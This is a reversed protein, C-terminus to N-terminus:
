PRTELALLASQMLESIRTTCALAGLSRAEMTEAASCESTYLVFPTRDGRQVRMLSLLTFGARPDDVRWQDSIVLDFRRTALRQLAEETSLALVFDIGFSAMAERERRNNDPKDDVWLVTRTAGPGAGVQPVFEASQSTTPAAAPEAEVALLDEAPPKSLWLSIALIVVASLVVAVRAPTARWTAALAATAASAVPSASVRAPTSGGADDGAGAGPVHANAAPALPADITPAEALRPSAVEVGAVQAEAVLVEAVLRYGKRPVTVIYAPHRGDDGLARRLVAVAQYVSEPTVVVDAWVTALLETVPVVRGPSAALCTLLRMLRPELKVAQGDRLLRDGEADVWWDGIRM